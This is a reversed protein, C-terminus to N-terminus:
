LDFRGQYIMQKPNLKGFINFKQRKGKVEISFETRLSLSKEEGSFHPNGKEDVRPFVLAPRPRTPTVTWFEALPLQKNGPSSMLYTNNHLDAITAHTFYTAIDHLGSDGPPNARCGVEIAIIKDPTTRVFRDLEAQLAADGPKQLLRMRAMAMRIPAATVLRFEFTYTVEREGFTAAQNSRQAGAGSDPIDLSPTSDKMSITSGFASSFTWPSKTLLELCEKDTWETYPKSEWFKAAFLPGVLLLIALVSIRSNIRKM